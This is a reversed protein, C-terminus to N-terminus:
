SLEKYTVFEDLDNFYQLCYGCCLVVDRELRRSVEALYAKQCDPCHLDTQCSHLRRVYKAPTDHPPRNLLISGDCGPEFDLEEVSQTDVSPATM